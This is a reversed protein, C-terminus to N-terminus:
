DFKADVVGISSLLAVGLGRKAWEAGETPMRGPKGAIDSQVDDAVISGVAAMYRVTSIINDIITPFYTYRVGHKECVKKVVPAIKPYEWSSMRPFLHHEIQLNLGGTVYGAMFGGYTCSTEAQMKYWCMPKGGNEVAAAPARDSGLFNHSVVFVFTLCAGCVAPVGLLAAYWPAGGIFYPLLVVCLYYRVRMAVAFPVQSLTWPNPPTEHGHHMTFLQKFDYVVSPGYASLIVYMYFAQFRVFWRNAPVPAWHFQLFPEASHADPDHEAINTHPHHGIVHQQM